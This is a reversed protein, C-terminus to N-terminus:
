ESLSSATAKDAPQLSEAADEAQSKQASPLVQDSQVAQATDDTEQSNAGAVTELLAKKYAAEEQATMCVYGGDQKKVQKYGKECACKILNVHDGVPYKKADCACDSLTKDFTQRGPCLCKNKDCIRNGTCDLTYICEVCKDGDWFPKAAKCKDSDKQSVPPMLMDGNSPKDMPTTAHLESIVSVSMLIGMFLAVLVWVRSTGSM